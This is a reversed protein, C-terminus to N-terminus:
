AKRNSSVVHETTDLIFIGINIGASLTSKSIEKNCALAKSIRTLKCVTVITKSAFNTKDTLWTIVQNIPCASNELVIATNFSKGITSGGWAM